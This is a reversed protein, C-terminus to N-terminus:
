ENGMTKKAVKKARQEDSEDSPMEEPPPATTPTEKSAITFTFLNVRIEGGAAVDSLMEGFLPHKYKTKELRRLEKKMDQVNLGMAEILSTVAPTKLAKNWNFENPATAGVPLDKSYKGAFEKGPNFLIPICITVFNARPALKAIIYRSVIHHITLAQGRRKNDFDECLKRKTSRVLSRAHFTQGDLMGWFTLDREWEEETLDPPQTPEVGRRAAALILRFTRPEYDIFVSGDPQKKLMDKNAFMRGVMTEKLSELVTDSFKFLEGGVDLKYLEKPPEM